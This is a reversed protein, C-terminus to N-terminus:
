QRWKQLTQTKTDPTLTKPSLDM